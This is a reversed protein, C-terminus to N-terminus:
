LLCVQEENLCLPLSPHGRLWLASFVTAVCLCVPIVHWVEAHDVELAAPHTLADSLSTLVCFARDGWGTQSSLDKCMLLFSLRITVVLVQDEGYITQFAWAINARLAKPLYM